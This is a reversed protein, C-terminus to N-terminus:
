CYDIRLKVENESKKTRNKSDEKQVTSQQVLINKQIIPPISQQCVPQDPREYLVLFYDAWHNSGPQHANTKICTVNYPRNKVSLNISKFKILRIKKM